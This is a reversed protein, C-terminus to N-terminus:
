VKKKFETIKGVAFKQIESADLIDVVRDNNVDAVALQESTLNIKGVAHKQVVTADLIDVSNDGNLDGVIAESEIGAEIFKFGNDNAYKEAESGKAGYITFDKKPEAVSYGLEEHYVFVYGFAQKGIDTVGKPIKASTANACDRFACDGISTVGDPIVIDTFCNCGSFAYEGIYTLRSPFEFEKLSGCSFFADGGISTVSDPITVNELEWNEAFVGWEISTVGKGVVASKLKPCQRFAGKGVYTVSDPIVVSSLVNHNFAFDGIRIMTDPFSVSEVYIHYDFAGHVVTTVGENIVVNNIENYEPGWPSTDGMAGNGSVTLTKTSSDYVWTCAGTTGSTPEIVKAAATNVSVVTFISIIMMFTIILSLLKVAHKKM